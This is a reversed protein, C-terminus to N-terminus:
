LMDIIQQVRWKVVAPKTTDDHDLAAIVFVEASNAVIKSDIAKIHNSGSRAHAASILIDANRSQAMNFGDEVASPTDGGTKVVMLKNQYKLEYIGDDYYPWGNSTAAPHPTPLTQPSVLQAGCSKVLTIVVETLTWTKRTDASGALVIWKMAGDKRYVILAIAAM